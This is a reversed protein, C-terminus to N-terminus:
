IGEARKRWEERTEKPLYRVTGDAQRCEIPADNCDECEGCECYQPTEM